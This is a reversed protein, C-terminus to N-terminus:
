RARGQLAYLITTHDRGGLLAGIAGYTLDTRARLERIAERRAAVLPRTRRPGRLTEVEIGRREAAAAIIEAPEPTPTWHAGRQGRATLVNTPRQDFKCAELPCSLCCLAYECGCRIHGGACYKERGPM